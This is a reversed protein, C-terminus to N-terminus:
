HVVNSIKIEGRTEDSDPVQINFDELRGKVYDDYLAIEQLLYEYEKMKKEAVQLSYEKREISDKM